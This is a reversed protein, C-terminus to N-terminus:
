SGSGLASRGLLFASFARRSGSLVLVHSLQGAQALRESARALAVAGLAEHYGGEAATELRSVNNWSSSDLAARVEQAAAGLVVLCREALPPAPLAGLADPVDLPGQFRGLLLAVGPEAHAGPELSELL